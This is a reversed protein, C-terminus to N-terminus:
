KICLSLLAVETSIIRLEKLADDVAEKSLSKKITEELVAISRQIRNITIDAKGM